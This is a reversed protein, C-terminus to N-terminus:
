FFNIGTLHIWAQINDELQTRSYKLTLGYCQRQFTLQLSKKQDREENLDYEYGVGAWVGDILEVDFGVEVISMQERNQRKYENIEDMFDFGFYAGYSEPKDYLLLHEHETVKGEYPSFWTRSVASLNDDWFLTVEAMADSFARRDYEEREDQRTAEVFDYSQELRLRVVDLYDISLGPIQEEGTPQVRARKRGAVNTLSYTLENVEDVRDLEDFYPNLSQNVYPIYTYELRPQIAHKLRLWRSQGLTDPGPPLTDEDGLEYIRFLESFADLHIDPVTRSVHRDTNEEHTTEQHQEINYFTQRLGVSSIFSGYEGTLPLSAMPHLDVRTGTTGYRRWFNTAMATAEVELPLDLGSIDLGPLGDKFWYASFEPLRQLSPDDSEPSNGNGNSVSQTYEMKAALGFRDYSRSVLLASTRNQDNDAIDRHFEELFIDRTHEFGSLGSSFERMYNQDSALDLDAKLQWGAALDADMKGRMWWRDRNTRLLGDENLGDPEEDESGARERDNLYDFRWWGKANLEDWNHRYEVGQMLGRKSMFNEYLTVDNEDDLVLYLPLNVQTGLNSSYALDPLLLGSQRETTAPFMFYPTYAMTSGGVKFRAGTLRAYGDVTVSGEDAAFSWAPTEGDCATVQANRFRYTQGYNKRVFEGSFYLHPKGMFVKGQKLWGVQNELDFEAEDARLEDGGLRVRVNGKLYVWHTPVFYRAFDAQLTNDGNAILVNGQAEVIQADYLGSVADAELSWPVDPNLSPLASFVDAAASVAPLALALFALLGALALGRFHTPRHTM